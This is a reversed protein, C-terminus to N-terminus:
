DVKMKKMFDDINGQAPNVDMEGPVISPTVMSAPLTRAEVDIAEPLRYQRVDVQRLIQTVMAAMGAMGAAAGSDQKIRVRSSAQADMDKLMSVLLMKNANEDPVASKATLSKVVRMRIDQTFAYQEEMKQEASLEEGEPVVKIPEDLVVAAEVPFHNPEQVFSVMPRELPANSDQNM